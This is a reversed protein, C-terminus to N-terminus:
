PALWKRQSKRQPLKKRWYRWSAAQLSVSVWAGNTPEWWRGGELLLEFLRSFPLPLPGERILLFMSRSCCPPSVPGLPIARSSHPAKADPSLWYCAPVPSLVQSSRWVPDSSSFRSAGPAVSNQPKSAFRGWPLGLVSKFVVSILAWKRGTTKPRISFSKSHAVIVIVIVKPISKPEKQNEIM